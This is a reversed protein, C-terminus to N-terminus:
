ITKSMIKKKMKIQNFEGLRQYEVHDTLAKVFFVGLGGIARDEISLLIDPDDKELPNFAVGNDQYVIDLQDETLSLTITVQGNKIDKFGYNATNTYLEELILNIQNKTLEDLGLEKCFVDLALALQHVEAVAGGLVIEATNKSKMNM